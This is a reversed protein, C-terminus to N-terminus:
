GSARPKTLMTDPGLRQDLLSAYQDPPLDLVGQNVGAMKFLGARSLIRSLHFNSLPDHRRIIVASAWGKHRSYHEANEHLQSGTYFNVGVVKVSSFGLSTLAFWAVTQVATCTGFLLLHNPRTANRFGQPSFDVGHKKVIAKGDLMSFVKVGRLRQLQLGKEALVDNNAFLYDPSASYASRESGSSPIVNMKAIPSVTDLIHYERSINYGPGVITLSSSTDSTREVCPIEEVCTRKYLFSLARLSQAHKKPLQADRQSAYDVAFRSMVACPEDEEMALFYLAPHHQIGSACELKYRSREALIGRIAQAAQYSGFTVFYFYLCMGASLHQDCLERAMDMAQGVSAVEPSDLRHNGFIKGLNVGRRWCERRLAKLFQARVYVADGEPIRQYGQWLAAKALLSVPKEDKSAHRLAM